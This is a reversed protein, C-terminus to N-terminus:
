FNHKEAKKLKLIGLRIKSINNQILFTKSNLKM